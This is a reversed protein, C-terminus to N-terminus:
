AIIAPVGPQHESRIACSAISCLVDRCTVFAQTRKRGIRKLQVMASHLKPRNADTHDFTLGVGAPRASNPYCCVHQKRSPARERLHLRRSIIGLPRVQFENESAVKMIMAARSRALRTQPRVARCERWTRNCDILRQEFSSHERTCLTTRGRSTQVM